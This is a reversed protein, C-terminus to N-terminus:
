WNEPQWEPPLPSIELPRFSADLETGRAIEAVEIASDDGGPGSKHRVLLWRGDLRADGPEPPILLRLARISQPHSQFLVVDTWVTPDTYQNLARAVEIQNALSPRYTNRAYGVKHVYATSALTIYAVSAGYTLVAPWGLRFRGLFDVGVWAFLVHIPFTGFFYQPAVPMRMVGYLLVQLVLGALAIGYVARRADALAPDDPEADDSGNARRRRWVLRVVAVAIGLWVLPYVILSAYKAGNVLAPPGQLRSDYTTFRYGALMEGGLLPTAM